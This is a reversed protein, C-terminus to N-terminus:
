RTLALPDNSTSASHRTTRAEPPHDRNRRRRPYPQRTPHLVHALPERTERSLRLTHELCIRKGALDSLAWKEPLLQCVRMQFPSTEM